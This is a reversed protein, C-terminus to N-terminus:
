ELWQKYKNLNKKIYNPLEKMETVILKQGSKFKSKKMDTQLDYISEKNEIKKKIKELGLADLDYERHHAYSKLKKEIDEPTKIYSFHWGGDEIFHINSYKNKSFIIDLRWLPYSKDKINRLWQPSKLDKKRCGRTGTWTVSESCLNFKYYFMKQKFFIFKKKVSNFDFNDLKPIEDLDSVLIFDSDDSQNLGNIIFNRQYFDRKMGNLIYKSNKSEENDSDNINQIDPPERDLTLYIIKDKFKEFNKIDFNLKRKKGSHTFNSEVIVFKDVYSNLYNLRLDLVVDEDLYM